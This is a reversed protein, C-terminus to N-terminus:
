PDDHKDVVRDDTAILPKEAWDDLGFKAFESEQQVKKAAKVRRRAARMALWTIVLMAIGLIILGGFAAIVRAKTRGDLKKIPAQEKEAASLLSALALLVAAVVFSSPALPMQTNRTPKVM